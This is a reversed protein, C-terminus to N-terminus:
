SGREKTLIAVFFLKEVLSGKVNGFLKNKLKMTINKIWKKQRM